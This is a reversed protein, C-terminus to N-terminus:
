DVLCVLVVDNSYWIETLEFKWSNFTLCTDELNGEQHVVKGLNIVYDGVKIDSVNVRKFMCFECM